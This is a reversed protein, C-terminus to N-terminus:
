IVILVVVVTSFALHCCWIVVGFSLMDDLSVDQKGDPNGHPTTMQTTMQTKMLNTMWATM